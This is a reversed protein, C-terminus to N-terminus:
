EELAESLRVVVGPFAVAHLAERGREVLRYHGGELYWAEGTGAAVDVLWLERVGSRAYTARKLLVVDEHAEPTLLEVVLEPAGELGRASVQTLAREARVVALDPYVVTTDSLAVAFPASFVYAVAPAELQALLQRQLRRAVGRRRATLPHARLPRGDVTETPLESLPVPTPSPRTPVPASCPM